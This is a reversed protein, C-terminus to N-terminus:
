QANKRARADQEQGGHVRHCHEAEPRLGREDRWQRDRDHHRDNQGPRDGSQIEEQASGHQELL